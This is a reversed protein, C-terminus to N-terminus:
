PEGNKSQVWRALELAQGEDLLPAFTPMQTGPKFSEPNRIWKAVEEPQKSIANKLKDRYQGKPGHCYNCGLSSFLKEPAASPDVKARPLPERAFKPSERAPLSKLFKFMAELQVDDLRRFRPMPTRLVQNDPAIGERMAVKFQELTWKGLGQTEHPTLNTSYIVGETGSQKQDFEFGGTFATDKAAKVENVELGQTHCAVCDFMAESLYKGYEVTPAKAPAKVPPRKETHVGLVFVQVINGLFTTESPPAKKPEPAFEPRDQRMFGIVAAIDEDAMTWFRVMPRLKGEHNVGHIIMRAIEEDKVNGMGGVPDSTLNASHLYGLEPPLVTVPAGVAHIEGAPAHCEVCLSMFIVEGRALAEPSTDRRIDPLPIDYTKNAQYTVYAYFGVGGLIILGVLAGFGMLIKRLM